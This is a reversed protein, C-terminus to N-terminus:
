GIQGDTSVEITYTDADNGDAKVDAPTFGNLVGGYTDARGFPNGDRDLPQKIVVSREKGVGNQLFRRIDNDRERDFGRMVSINGISPQGGLSVEPGMGGPRHKTEKATIAGGTFDDFVGILRGGVYLTIEYQDIRGIM